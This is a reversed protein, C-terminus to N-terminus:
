EIVIEDVCFTIPKGQGTLSFFFASKVRSLDAGTLDIEYREWANTLTIEQERKVTDFYPKESGIVGIGFKVKIRGVDSRARFSLKTAGTFNLGGPKDGWDAEPSQWVVGAWDDVKAYTVKLCHSGVAPNETSAADIKLADISGMFGSPIFVAAENSPENYITLPLEASPSEVPKENGKVRLPVNATAVGLGDEVYAYIRYLGAEQPVKFKAGTLDGSILNKDIVKSAEEFDGGTGYAEKNRVLVWKVKLPQGEPDETSLSVSVTSNPAVLKDGILTMSNIRPCLNEVPKGTWSHSMVDVMNTKRGDPLLMSFWTATREQKNGWIFAYSGLCLQKEKDLAQQAARYQEAKASSSLEEVTNIENKSVEWWGTPGFETVIYPKREIGEEVMPQTLARYKLPAHVCEGYVNIGIIDVSPCLRHIAEIKRGGLGAVVTMVPHNPDIKKIQGALFEIHSWIAPNDNSNPAEMENGLGWILLAPHDKLRRVDALTKDIQESMRDFNQYDMGHRVQGLWIGMTVSINNEAAEDLREIGDDTEWTRTSNGGYEALMKLSGGGGAGKVRFPKGERLLQWNGDGDKILTVKSPTATQGQAVDVPLLLLFSAICFTTTLGVACFNRFNNAV